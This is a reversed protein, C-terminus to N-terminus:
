CGEHAAFEEFSGYRRIRGGNEEILGVFEAEIKRAAEALRGLARHDFAELLDYEGVEDLERQLCVASLFALVANGAECSVYIKNFTSSIEEYLGALQMGDIAEGGLRADEVAAQVPPVAIRLHRCVDTLMKRAYAAAEDGSAAKVVSRYGEVIEEPVEQMKMLDEFQRKLGFHFYEHHFVAVADALTMIVMGALKWAETETRVHELMGCLRGAERCREEAIERVYAGDALCCQLKEQMGQFRAMDEASGCFIIEADGVLPTLNERLCAIREVREWSMPFIDYGVGELIFGTAMEYGRETKPIFCCDVDSRSNATGNVYSGYILVLSIDKAYEREVKEAIWQVLRGNIEKRREM